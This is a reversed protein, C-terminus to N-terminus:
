DPLFCIDQLETPDRDKWPSPEGYVHPLLWDVTMGIPDPPLDHGRDHECLMVFHGDGQLQESFAATTDTFNIQMMGTDFVDTPGGWVLM